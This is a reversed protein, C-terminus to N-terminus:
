FSRETENLSPASRCEPCLGVFELRHGLIEFGGLSAGVPEVAQVHVGSVDVVRGCQVCRAHYHPAPNGDYRAETSGLDLKQILGGHALLELNRYVTGLSIKPLRERVLAHLSAASPHSTLRRLEELIVRRQTTQRRTRTQRM